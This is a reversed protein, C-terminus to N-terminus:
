IYICINIKLNKLCVEGDKVSMVEMQINNLMLTHMLMILLEKKMLDDHNKKAYADAEDETDFEAVKKNNVDFVSNILEKNKMVHKTSWKM